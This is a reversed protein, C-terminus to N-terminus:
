TLTACQLLNHCKNQNQVEFPFQFLNSFDRERGPTFHLFPRFHFAQIHFHTLTWVTQRTRTVSVRNHNRTMCNSTPSKSFRSYDAGCVAHICEAKTRRDGCPFARGREVVRRIANRCVSLSKKNNKVCKRIDKIFYIKYKWTYLLLIICEASFFTVPFEM